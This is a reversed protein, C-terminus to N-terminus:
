SDKGAAPRADGRLNEILTRLDAPLAASFCLETRDAPHVFELETAHLAQRPFAAL